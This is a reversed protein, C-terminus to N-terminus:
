STQKKQKEDEIKSDCKYCKLGNDQHFKNKHTQLNKSSVFIKTCFICMFRGNTEKEKKTNNWVKKCGEGSIFNDLIVKNM